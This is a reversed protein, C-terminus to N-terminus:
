LLLKKSLKKAGHWIDLSHHIGLEKYKGKDPDTFYPFM